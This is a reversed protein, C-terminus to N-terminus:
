LNKQSLNFRCQSKLPCSTCKPVKKCYTKALEVILAHLQKYLQATDKKPFNKHLEGQFYQQIKDYSDGEIKVDLRQCIRKTYADVVFIPHNGAYLLMSDATEPGIGNLSLLEMRIQSLDRNFFKDLDGKFNKYLYNAVTKLRTAKQNFFGSPQIMTKLNEIDIEVMKKVILSNNTKLNTLAKEVNSWATNQTLIAGVMIEFRSDSKNEQHYKKDM